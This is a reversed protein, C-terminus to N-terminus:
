KQSENETREERKVLSMFMRGGPRLVTEGKFLSDFWGLICREAWLRHLNDRGRRTAHGDESSNNCLCNLHGDESALSTSRYIIM